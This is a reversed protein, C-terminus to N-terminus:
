IVQSEPFHRTSGAVVLYSSIPVGGIFPIRTSGMGWFTLWLKSVRKIRFKVCQSLFSCLNALDDNGVNPDDM